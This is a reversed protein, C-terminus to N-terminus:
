LTLKDFLQQAPEFGLSAAKEACQSAQQIQCTAHYLMGLNYWSHASSPFKKVLKSFIDIAKDYQKHKAQWIGRAFAKNIRVLDIGEEENIENWEDIINLHEEQSTKQSPIQQQLRQEYEHRERLLIQEHEQSLEIQKQLTVCIKQSDKLLKRLQKIQEKQIKIERKLTKVEHEETM